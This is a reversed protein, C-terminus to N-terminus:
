VMIRPPPRPRPSFIHICSFSFPYIQDKCSFLLLLIWPSATLNKQFIGLSATLVPQMKKRLGKYYKSFFWGTALPLVHYKGYKFFFIIVLFLHLRIFFTGRFECSFPVKSKLIVLLLTVPTNM